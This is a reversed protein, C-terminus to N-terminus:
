DPLSKTELIRSVSMFRTAFLTVPAELRDIETFGLLKNVYFSPASGRGTKTLILVTYNIVNSGNLKGALVVSSYLINAESKEIPIVKFKGLNKDKIMADLIMSLAEKGDALTSDLIDNGRYTFDFNGLMKMIEQSGGAPQRFVNEPNAHTNNFNNSKAIDYCESLSLTKTQSFSYFSALFFIM